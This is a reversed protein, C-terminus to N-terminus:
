NSDYEARLTALRTKGNAPRGDVRLVDVEFGPYHKAFRKSRWDAVTYMQRAARVYKSSYSPIKERDARVDRRSLGYRVVIRFTEVRAVQSEVQKITAM